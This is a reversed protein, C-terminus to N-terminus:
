GAQPFKFFWVAAGVLVAALVAVTPLLVAAPASHRFMNFILTFFVKVPSDRFPATHFIPATNV